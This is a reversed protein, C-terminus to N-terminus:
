RFNPKNHKESHRETGVHGLQTQFNSNMGGGGLSDSCAIMKGEWIEVIM